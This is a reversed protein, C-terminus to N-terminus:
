KAPRAFLSAELGPNVKYEKVTVTQSLEGNSSVKESHAIWMGDIEKFDSYDTVNEAPGQASMGRYSSRIIRGSSPDVYFRVAIGDNTVDLIDTKVGGIDETGAHNLEVGPKGLAQAIFVPNRKVEKMMEDRQSGPMDQSMTGMLMFADDPTIVMAMNQGGMQIDQRMKTTGSLYGTASGQMEGMPTKMTLTVAVQTEKIGKVKDAGGYSDVVKEFIARGKDLTQATAAAKEPGAPEPISIDLNTVKGFSSLPKDFDESKGVVIVALQDKKIYQKAVRMVDDKTVKQIGAQYKQLFDAPYGFYAFTLQQRLVKEKSDVRFIFSNLISDKARKMEVDTVPVAGRIGDIEEFLADVGAAMTSNKTGMGVWFLGPHDYRSVVWSFVSYALGKTTRINSFMRSSFGGSMVENMLTIAYYDPNDRTIGLHVMGIQAQTVDSKEILYYGAKTVKQYSAEADKFDPGKAWSGFAKKLTSLMLKEDFDGVVAMFIRNPHVYKGHWNVLDDRTIAAVTDYEPYRAYPSDDGYALKPGERFVIGSPDDNRRAIGTKVQQKAIEIKDEAFAPNKMVDVFADLVVPFDDKLCNMSLTASDNSMSSEVKAALIELMEDLEDGSHTTTGGTRWSEGFVSDIGTKEAPAYRGGTRVRATVDILPLEHNEMLFVVMGNPLEHRVPQPIEFSRLEPIPVDKWSKPQALLSPSSFAVIAIAALSIRMPSFRSM